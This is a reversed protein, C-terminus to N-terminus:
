RMQVGNVFVSGDPRAEVEMVRVDPGDGARFVTALGLRANRANEPTIWGLSVVADILRDLGEVRASATGVPVPVGAADDFTFSGSGTAELGAGAVEFSRVELSEIDPPPAVNGKAEAAAMAALDITARGAVDVMLRLPERPLLAGPDFAAWAEEGLSVEEMSVLYRFEGPERGLPARIDMQLPGYTLDISPVPLQPSSGSASGGGADMVLAVGTGDMSLSATAPESTTQLSYSFPFGEARDSTTSPGSALDLRVALGQELLLLADPGELAGMRELTLGEPLTVEATLTLEGETRSAQDAGLAAAADGVNLVYAFGRTSLSAAVTRDPGLQGPFRLALDVVEFALDGTGPTDPAPLSVARLSGAAVEYDIPRPAGAGPTAGEPGADRATIALGRQEVRLDGMPGAGGPLVGSGPLGVLGIAVAGSAAPTLTVEQVPSEPPLPEPVGGPATVRINRLTLAGGPGPVAEAELTAGFGTAQAQWTSWLEEPTLALAPSAALLLALTSLHAPTM